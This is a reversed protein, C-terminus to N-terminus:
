LFFATKYARLIRFRIWIQTKKPLALPDAVRSTGATCHVPVLVPKVKSTSPTGSSSPSRRLPSRRTLPSSSPSWRRTSGCCGSSCVPWTQLSNLPILYLVWRFSKFDKASSNLFIGEGLKQCSRLKNAGRFWVRTRVIKNFVRSFNLFFTLTLFKINKTECYKFKLCADM